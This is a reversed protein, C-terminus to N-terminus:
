FYEPCEEEFMNWLADTAKQENEAWQIYLSEVTYFNEEDDEASDFFKFGENNMETRACDLIQEITMFETM